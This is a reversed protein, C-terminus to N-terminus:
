SHAAELRQSIEQLEAMTDGDRVERGARGYWYAANRLDGEIRHLVAHIWCALPHDNDQQVLNHSAEWQNDQALLIAQQLQKRSISM